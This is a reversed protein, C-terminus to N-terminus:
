TLFGMVRHAVALDGDAWALRSAPGGRGREGALRFALMGRNAGNREVAREVSSERERGLNLTPTMSCHEVWDLLEEAGVDTIGTNHSVDVRTMSPHNKLSEALVLIGADTLRNYSLNLTTMTQSAVLSAALLIANADTFRIGTLDLTTMTRSAGVASVIAATGSETTGFSWALELKTLTPSHRICDSLARSCEDSRLDLGSLGLTKMTRSRGVASVLVAVGGGTIGPNSTLLLSKLTPSEGVAAALAVVGVDTIRNASLDLYDLTRSRGVAAAITAVGVDDIENTNLIMSTLSRSREIVAAFADAGANLTHIFVFLRPSVPASVLTLVDSPPVRCGIFQVSALSLGAITQLDAGTLTFNELCLGSCRRHVYRVNVLCALVGNRPVRRWVGEQVLTLTRLPYSSADTDLKLALIRTALENTTKVVLRLEGKVLPFRDAFM